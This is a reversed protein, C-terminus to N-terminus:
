IATEPISEILDFAKLAVKRDALLWYRLDEPFEDHFVALRSRSDSKPPRDKKL